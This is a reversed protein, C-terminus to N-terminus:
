VHEQRFWSVIEYLLFLSENELIISVVEGGCKVQSIIVKALMRYSLYCVLWSQIRAPRPRRGLRTDVITSRRVFRSPLQPLGETNSILREHRHFSMQCDSLRNVALVSLAIVDPFVSFSYLLLHLDQRALFHYLLVFM